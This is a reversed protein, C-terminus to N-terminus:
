SLLKIELHKTHFFLGGTHTPILDHFYRARQTMPKQLYVNKFYNM